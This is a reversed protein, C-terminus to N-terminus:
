SLLATNPCISTSLLTGTGSTPLPSAPSQFVTPLCNGLLLLFLLYSKFMLKLIWYCCSSCKWGSEQTQMLSQNDSFGACQETKIRKFVVFMRMSVPGLTGRVRCKGSSSLSIHPCQEQVEEAVEAGSGAFLFTRHGEPISM